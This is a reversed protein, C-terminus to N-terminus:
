LSTISRDCSRCHHGIALSCLFFAWKTGSFPIFPLIWMNSTFAVEPFWIFARWAAKPTVQKWCICRSCHVIYVHDSVNMHNGSSYAKVNFIHIRGKIGNEPVFHAKKRTNTLLQGDSYNDLRFCRISRRSDNECHRDKRWLLSDESNMKLTHLWWFLKCRKWPGSKIPATSRRMVPYLKLAVFRHHGSLKKCLFTGSRWSASVSLSLSVLSM